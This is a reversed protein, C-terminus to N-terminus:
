SSSLSCSLALLYWFSFYTPISYEHLRHFIKRRTITIFKRIIAGRPKRSRTNRQIDQSTQKHKNLNISGCAFHLTHLQFSPFIQVLHNAFYLNTINTHLFKISVSHHLIYWCYCCFGCCQYSIM